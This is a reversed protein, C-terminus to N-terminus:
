HQPACYRQGADPVTQPIHPPHLNLNDTAPVSPVGPARGPHGAPRQSAGTVVDGSELKRGARVPLKVNQNVALQRPLVLVPRIVM